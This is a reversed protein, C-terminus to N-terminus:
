KKSSCEEALQEIKKLRHFICSKTIAGGIINALEQISAYPNNLRAQAVVALKESLNEIGIYKSLIDIHHLQRSASLITKDLNATECNVLRNVTNLLDKRAIIDQLNLLARQVGIFRLFEFIQESKKIYVAWKKQWLSIKPLFLFEILIDSILVAISKRYCSVELHYMREPDNIFGSTLFVGRLFASPSYDKSYLQNKLFKPNKASIRGDIDVQLNLYKLVYSIKEDDNISILYLKKKNRKIVTNIKVEFHFINKFLFYVVKVMVPSEFLLSLEKGEKNVRGEMIMLAILEAKQEASNWPLIRALEQKVM